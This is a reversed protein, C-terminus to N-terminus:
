RLGRQVLAVHIPKGSLQQPMRCLTTKSTLLIIEDIDAHQAYRQLQRSVENPFGSIKLEIAIRGVLFDLRDQANIRVERQFEVGATTLAVETTAQFEAESGTKHPARELLAILEPATM